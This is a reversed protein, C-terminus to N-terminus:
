FHKTIKGQPISQIALFGEERWNYQESNRANKKPYAQKAIPM